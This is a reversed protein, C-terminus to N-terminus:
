KKGLLRILKLLKMERLSIIKKSFRRVGKKDIRQEMCLGTRDSIVYLSHIKKKLPHKKMLRWKKM